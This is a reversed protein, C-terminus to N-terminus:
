PEPASSSLQGPQSDAISGHHRVRAGGFLEDSSVVAFRDFLAAIKGVFQSLTLRAARGRARVIKMGQSNRASRAPRARHGPHSSTQRETEPAAEPGTGAIMPAHRGGITHSSSMAQLSLGTFDCSLPSPSRAQSRV